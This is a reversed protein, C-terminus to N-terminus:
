ILYKIINTTFLLIIFIIDLICNSINLIKNFKNKKYIQIKIFYM